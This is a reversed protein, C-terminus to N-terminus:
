KGEPWSTTGVRTSEKMCFTRNVDSGNSIFKVDMQLKDSVRSRNGYILVDEKMDQIM